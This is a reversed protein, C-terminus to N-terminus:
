VNAQYRFGNPDVCDGGVRAYALLARTGDPRNNAVNPVLGLPEVTMGVRRPIVYRSFDGCVLRTSAGTTSSWASFSANEVAQRGFLVEFSNLRGDLAIASAHYFSMGRVRSMVSPSMMWTARKHFKSPLSNWVAYVDPEGFAGDTASTVLLTPTAAALATLLGTPEGTGSGSTFKSLCLEDYGVALIRRFEDAFGPWDEAIEISHQVVGTCMHVPIQPQSISTLSVDPAESGEGPFSWVGGASKLGRWEKTGIDIVRALTWFDNPDEQDSLTVTPDISVPVAFGGSANVAENQARAEAQRWEFAKLMAAQEDDDLFPKEWGGGRLVWKKFASRYGATECVVARRAILNNERFVTDLADGSRASLTRATERDDLISLAVDRAQADTLTTVDRVDDIKQPHRARHDARQREVKARLADINPKPRTQMVNNAKTSTHVRGETRAASRLRPKVPRVGKIPQRSLDPVYEIEGRHNEIAAAIHAVWHEYTPDAGSADRTHTRRRGSTRLAGHFVEVARCHTDSCFDADRFQPDWTVPVGDIRETAM